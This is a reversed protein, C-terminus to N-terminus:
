YLYPIPDLIVSLGHMIMPYSSIILLICFYKVSDYSSNQSFNADMKSKSKKKRKLLSNLVYKMTNPVWLLM